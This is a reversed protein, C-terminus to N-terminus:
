FHFAKRRDVGIRRDGAVRRDAMPSRRDAGDRREPIYRSYSFQRRDIGIRRGGNDPPTTAMQVRASYAM